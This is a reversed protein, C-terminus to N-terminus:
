FPEEGVHVRSHIILLRKRSFSKGCASCKYPKEGTHTRQHSTLGASWSFTKGCEFCKYPKEGTHIRQHSTLEASRRFTKGCEACKYPKDRQHIRAHQILYSMCSFRKGCVSCKYLKEGTHSRKHQILQANRSFSKGCVSCKFPKEKTHIREHFILHSRQRFTKACCSCKYPREGTHTRKHLILNSSCTFRKGCVLCKYPRDGTHMRRHRLLYSNCSFSKGCVACTYPKEGTHIREHVVLYSNCSFSKGCVSCSFPKEGTHIREHRILHSKDRFTKLCSTCQHPKKKGAHMQQHRTLNDKRSLSKGCESCQYPTKQIPSRECRLLSANERSSGASMEYWQEPAERQNVSEACARAQRYDHCIKQQITGEADRYDERCSISERGRKEPYTEPRIERRHWNESFNEQKCWHSVNAEVRGVSMGYPGVQESGDPTYKREESGSMCGKVALLSSERNDDEQKAEMCLPRQEAEPPAQGAGSFSVAAEALLTLVQKEMREADRQLFDEALAVAQICTEPSWQRVWNQMEPPLITLLQELILLELIQEKTHREVKLWGHCLEQLRSYAGRPGEAEQYCFSRFHQRLKERRMGDWRLIAAKVKGYDERDRAELNIFAQKAEGRLAPLLWSAWEERPWRCAEAVQEFTALFAKPDGWPKPEEPLQPSGWGSHPSEVTKLFEQWQAEWHQLLGEGPEQKVLTAGPIRQLVESISGAQLVHLDKVSGQPGEGQARGMPEQAEMKM